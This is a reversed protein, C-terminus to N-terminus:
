AHFEADGEAIASEVSLPRFMSEAYRHFTESTTDKFISYPPRMLEDRMKMKPAVPYAPREM